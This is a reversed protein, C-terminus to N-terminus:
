NMRNDKLQVSSRFSPKVAHTSNRLGLCVSGLKVAEQAYDVQFLKGQPSFTTCDTDYLTKLM